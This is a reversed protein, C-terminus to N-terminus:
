NSIIGKKDIKQFLKSLIQMMEEKFTQYCKGTFCDPCKTKQLFIKILLNLIM